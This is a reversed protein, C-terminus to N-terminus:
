HREIGLEAALEGVARAVTQARISQRDGALVLEVSRTGAAAQPCFGGL